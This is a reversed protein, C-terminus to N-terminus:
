FTLKMGGFTSFGRTGYGKVQEYEEDLINEMRAFVRFNDTIDYSAALDVLTYNDLEVRTAPWTSYDNDDRDGVYVVGLNVNGRELFRYTVDIGFKNRPRRVLNKGTTEDETDSYTYSARISLDDTPRASAFLEVGASEAESINKFMSTANDFDIMDDFDNRFYTAGLSLKKEWLDQELGVDWGESSEPDLNRDGYQSYLQFLSPAKFGTGYSTRIKTGTEKFLYASAIRYTVETGFRSHDDLRVGVTTFLRDWLGIQDQLYYSSTRATKRDFRSTFPGWASESYYDSEGKEEEIELGVILTNTDLLYLDHQWDFKVLRSDYSSRLLDDPHDPDKNNRADADHDALSFGLKQEWLDDFLSLMAQTRFFIQSSDFVYNPDDGGVGGFNDLDTEADIYRLIFDVASNETPTLGFRAAISTNEYGDEERNGDKRNAASIGDTDLRSVNISYNLWRSSGSVGAREHFTNFSGGEGSIFFKPKGKGKRTIINIVGGIADSGYLPSQPGRVIEIREINDTTLDAFNYSRGPSIPDNMELGDVLVLTHESKAGRIFISTYGGPGGTQVVDLAPVGRLIELVTTKQKNEIEERTIVTVSSAVEESPTEIRTATVVIEEIEEEEVTNGSEQATLSGSTALLMALLTAAILGGRKM